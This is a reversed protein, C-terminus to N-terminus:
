SASFLRILPQTISTDNGATRPSNKSIAWALKRNKWEMKGKVRKENVSKILLHNRKRDLYCKHRVRTKNASVYEDLFAQHSGFNLHMEIDAWSSNSRKHWNSQESSQFIVMYIIFLTLIYICTDPFTYINPEAVPWM